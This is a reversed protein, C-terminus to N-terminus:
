DAIPAECTLQDLVLECSLLPNGQEDRQTAIWGPGDPELTMFGFAYFTEAQTIAPDGLEGAAPSATPIDDLATGANGSVLQPPRESSEDFAISEAVHIHGSLVLGYDAKLNGGTAAQFAANEVQFESGKGALIGWVPRHTVLWSGPPAIESLLDFQRSYEATEEPTDFTDAAEASDIVAFSVGRLMTVYPETIRQCVPQYQRPDLFTFWGLPNRDCTEHNGRMFVWPAAGLVSAAPSFFDANWTAWNDGYPNGQCGAMGAPCPSERYLYDGVHVILDPDWDAVSQAVQAFPWAGPDNCAQYKKEWDNLRCGTDGIVAIRRIPGEPLPLDQDRISATETGFPVTAECAVVPFADSAPARRSMPVDFGDVALAPCNADVIVRAILQGDPGLELWPPPLTTTAETPLPSAIPTGPQASVTSVVSLLALLTLAVSKLAVRPSRCRSSDFVM